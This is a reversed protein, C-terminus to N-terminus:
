EKYHYRTGRSVLKDAEYSSLYVRHESKITNVSDSDSDHIVGTKKNLVYRYTPYYSTDYGYKKKSMLKNEIKDENKKLIIVINLVIVTTIPFLINDKDYIFFFIFKFLIFELVLSVLWKIIKFFIRLIPKLIDFLLSIMTWLTIVILVFLIIIYLEQLM